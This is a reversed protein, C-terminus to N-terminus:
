GKYLYRVASKMVLLNPMGDRHIKICRSDYWEIVGRLTEGSNLVVLM